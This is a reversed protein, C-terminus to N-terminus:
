VQGQNVEDYVKLMQTSFALLLEWLFVKVHRGVLPRERKINALCRRKIELLLFRTHVNDLVTM